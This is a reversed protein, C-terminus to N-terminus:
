RHPLIKRASWVKTDVVVFRSMRDLNVRERRGNHSRFRLLATEYHAALNIMMNVTVSLMKGRLVIPVPRDLGGFKNDRFFSDWASLSVVKFM